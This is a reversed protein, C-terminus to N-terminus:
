WTGRLNGREQQYYMTFKVINLLSYHFHSYWYIIAQIINLVNILDNM